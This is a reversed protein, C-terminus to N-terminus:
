STEREVFEVVADAVAEASQPDAHCHHSADSVRVATLRHLRAMRKAVAEEDFPWGHEAGVALVPVDRLASFISLLGEEQHYHSGTGLLTQDHRFSVPAADDGAYTTGRRVM